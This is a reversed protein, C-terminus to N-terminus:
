KYPPLGFLERGANVSDMDAECMFTNLKDCEEVEIMATLSPEGRVYDINCRSKCMVFAICKKCPVEIM